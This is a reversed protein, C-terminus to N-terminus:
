FFPKQSHLTKNTAVLSNDFCSNYRRRNSNFKNIRVIFYM